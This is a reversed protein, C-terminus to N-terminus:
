KKFTSHFFTHTRIVLYNLIIEKGSIKERFESMYLKFNRCLIHFRKMEANKQMHEPCSKAEPDSEMLLASCSPRKHNTCFLYM